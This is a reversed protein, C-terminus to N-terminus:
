CHVCLYIFTVEFIWNILKARMLFSVDVHSKLLESRRFQVGRKARMKLSKYFENWYSCDLNDTLDSFLDDDVKFDQDEDQLSIYDTWEEANISLDSPFDSSLFSSKEDHDSLEVVVGIDSDSSFEENDDFSSLDWHGKSKRRCFCTTNLYVYVSPITVIKIWDVIILFKIVIGFATLHVQEVEEALKRKKETNESTNGSKTGGNLNLIMELSGITVDSLRRLM